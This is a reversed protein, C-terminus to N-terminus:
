GAGGVHVHVDGLFLFLRVHARRAGVLRNAENGRTLEAELLGDFEDVVVLEDLDRRLGDPKALSDERRVHTRLLDVSLSRPEAESPLARNGARRAPTLPAPEGVSM